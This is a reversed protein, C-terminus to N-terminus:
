PRYAPQVRSLADTLRIKGLFRWVVPPKKEGTAAASGSRGCIFM